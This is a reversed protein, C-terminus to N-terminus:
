WKTWGVFTTVAGTAVNLVRSQCKHGYACLLDLDGNMQYGSIPLRIQKVIKGSLDFFQFDSAKKNYCTRLCVLLPHRAAHAKSFHPDTTLSRWSRCVLSTRCLERAPVRVLIEFLIDTPLNGDNAVLTRPAALESAM